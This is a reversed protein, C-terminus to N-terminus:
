RGCSNVSRNVQSTGKSKKPDKLYFPNMQESQKRSERQKALDENSPEVYVKAKPYESSASEGSFFTHNEARPHIAPTEDESESPPENIWADLDLSFNLMDRHVLLAVSRGRPFLSKEKHKRQLLISFETSYHLYNRSM